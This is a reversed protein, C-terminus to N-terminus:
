WSNITFLRGEAKNLELALFERAETEDRVRQELEEGRHILADFEESRGTVTEM